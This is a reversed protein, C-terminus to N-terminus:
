RNPRKQEALTYPHNKKKGNKKEKKVAPQLTPLTNQNFVDVKM